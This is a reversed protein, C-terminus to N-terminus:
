DGFTFFQLSPVEDETVALSAAYGPGVDLTAATVATSPLPTGLGTGLCKAIAERRTWAQHFAASREAPLTARVAAAASPDLAREALKPLGRRPRIREVDIGVERGHTVAVLALGGSHSLNFRLPSSSDALAPKGHEGMQLEIEAPEEGLYCGLVERLVGGERNAPALWVHVEDAPVPLRHPGTEWGTALEEV